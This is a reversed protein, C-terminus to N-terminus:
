CVHYMHKPLHLARCEWCLRFAASLSVSVLVLSCAFLSFFILCFGLLSSLLGLAFSSVPFASRFLTGSLLTERCFENWMKYKGGKQLAHIRSVPQRKTSVWLCVCVCLYVSICERECDCECWANTCPLKSEMREAKKISRMKQIHKLTYHVRRRQKDTKAVM